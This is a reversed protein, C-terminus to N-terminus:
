KIVSQLELILHDYEGADELHLINIISFKRPSNLPRKHGDTPLEGLSPSVSGVLPVPKPAANGGLDWNKKRRWDEYM